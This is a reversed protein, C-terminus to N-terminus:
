RPGELGALPPATAGTASMGADIRLVQGNLHRAQPSLLFAVGAAIDEPDLVRRMPTLLEWGALEAAPDASAALSASTAATLVPGPAVANCRIGLQGYEVCIGRTLAELGGKTAAYAIWGPLTGHAHISSVNVIAGPTGHRLFARVAERCALLPARLNVALTRDIREDSEQDFRGNTQVAANNVWGALGAGAQEIAAALTEPAAVDGALPVLLEGASRALADLRDADLDLAVVRWGDSLLRRAVAEGIGAAAGTVVVTRRM